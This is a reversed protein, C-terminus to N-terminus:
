KDISKCTENKEKVLEATPSVLAKLILQNCEREQESIQNSDGYSITTIVPQYNVAANCYMTKYRQQNPLNNRRNTLATCLQNFLLKAKQTCATYDLNDPAYNQCVSDNQLQWQRYNFPIETQQFLIAVETNENAELSPQPVQINEGLAALYATLAIATASM